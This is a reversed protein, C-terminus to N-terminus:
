MRPLDLTNFSQLNALQGQRTRFGVTVTPVGLLVTTKALRLSPDAVVTAHDSSM